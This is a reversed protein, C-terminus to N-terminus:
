SLASRTRLDLDSCIASVAVRLLSGLDDNPGFRPSNLSMVRKPTVLKEWAKKSCRREKPDFVGFAKGGFRQILSFCPVDTLGDGVYIMNAFPVRRNPEPMEDNVAYPKGTLKADIGKNIQFVYRTKETFSVANKIHQVTGNDGEELQCGWIDTFYPAVTSGRIVEELGGSIVYFEIGPNSLPHNKVIGQLDKFLKPIGKYFKLTSGFDALQKNNLKALPGGDKASQLLRTLYALTPNWGSQVLANVEEQWFKAANVGHEELLRTTSDDALTDDFDFIVAIINQPASM